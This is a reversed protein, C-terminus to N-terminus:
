LTLICIHVGFGIMLNENIVEDITEMLVFNKIMREVRFGSPSMKMRKKFTKGDKDMLNNLFITVIFSNKLDEKYPHTVGVSVSIREPKEKGDIANLFLRFTVELEGVHDILLKFARTEAVLKEDPPYYTEADHNVTSLLTKLHEWAQKDIKVIAMCKKTCVNTLVPTCFKMPALDCFSQLSFDFSLYENLQNMQIAM